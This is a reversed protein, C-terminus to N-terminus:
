QPFWASRRSKAQSFKVSIPSNKETRPSSIIIISARPSLAAQKQNWILRMQKMMAAAKAKAEGSVSASLLVIQREKLTTKIVAAVDEVNGDDM